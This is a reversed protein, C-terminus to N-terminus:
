EKQLQQELVNLFAIMNQNHQIVNVFAQKMEETLPVENQIYKLLDGCQVSANVMGKLNKSVKRKEVKSMSM